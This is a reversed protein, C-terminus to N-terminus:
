EKVFKSVGQRCQKDLFRLLYVGSSLNSIDVVDAKSAITAQYIRVGTVNYIELSTGASAYDIHLSSRAPNPYVKINSFGPIAEISTGSTNVNMCYIYSGCDSAATVCVTYTGPESYNHVPDPSGSIPSGDGFDWEISTYTGSGTYTFELENEGAVTYNFDPIPVTCNCIDSGIKAVFWDESYAPSYEDEAVFMDGYFYGGTFFNGNKDSTMATVYEEGGYNSNITDLSLLAGTAANFRGVFVDLHEGPPVESQSLEFGDWTMQGHMGSIAAIGNAYAVHFSTGNSAHDKEPSTVWVTNGDKDLKLLFQTPYRFDGYDNEFVHGYWSDQEYIFGTVYLNGTADIAVRSNTGSWSGFTGTDAPTSQKLWEADGTSDFGAVYLKQAYGGSYVLPDSGVSMTGYYGEFTGSLYFRGNRHDRKFNANVPNVFAELEYVSSTAVSIDLPVANRFVGNKDYHLVYLHQATVAFAGSEYSGPSLSSYVFVNGDPAVDMDISGTRSISTIYGVTDPQPMRLWQYNGATDFKAIFLGKNTSGSVSDRDILLSDPFMEPYPHSAYAMVNGCIYVGGLTDTKVASARNDGATGGILKHWRYQGHCDFSSLVITERAGLVNSVGAISVGSIDGGDFVTSLVYVSGNPDTAMDIVDDRHNSVIPGSDNGRVGWQWTPQANALITGLILTTILIASRRYLNNLIQPHNISSSLKRNSLLM